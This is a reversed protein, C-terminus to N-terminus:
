EYRYVSILNEKKTVKFKKGSLSGIVCATNRITNEKADVFRISGGPQLTMLRSRISKAKVM